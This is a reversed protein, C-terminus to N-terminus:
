SCAAPEGATEGVTDLVVPVRCWERVYRVARVLCCFLVLIHFRHVHLSMVVRFAKKSQIVDCMPGVATRLTM